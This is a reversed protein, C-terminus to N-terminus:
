VPLACTSFVSWRIGADPSPPTLLVNDTTIIKRKVAPIKMGCVYDDRCVPSPPKPCGVAGNALRPTQVRTNYRPPLRIRPIPFFSRPRPRFRLRPHSRLGPRPQFHSRPRPLLPFPFPHPPSRIFTLHFNLHSRPRPPFPFQFSSLISAPGIRLHFRSWHRTSPFPFLFSSRFRPPHPVSWFACSVGSSNFVCHPFRPISLHFSFFVHVLCPQNLLEHGLYGLFHFSPLSTVM